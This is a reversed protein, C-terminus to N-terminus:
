ELQLQKIRRLNCKKQNDKKNQAYNSNMKKDLVILEDEENDNFSRFINKQNLKSSSQDQDQEKYLENINSHYMNKNQSRSSKKNSSQRSSQNARSQVLYSNDNDFLDKPNGAFPHRRSVSQKILSSSREKNKNIVSPHNSGIMRKKVVGNDIQSNFQSRKLLQKYHISQIKHHLQYALAIIIIMEIFSSLLQFKDNESFLYAYLHNLIATEKNRGILIIRFQPLFEIISRLILLYVAFAYDDYFVLFILGLVFLDFLLMWYLCTQSDLTKPYLHNKFANYFNAPIYRTFHYSQYKRVKNDDFATIIDYKDPRTTRKMEFYFNIRNLIFFFLLCIKLIRITESM